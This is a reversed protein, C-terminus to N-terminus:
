PHRCALTGRGVLVRRIQLLCRRESFGGAAGDLTGVGAVGPDLRTRREPDLEDVYGLKGVETRLHGLPDAGRDGALGRNICRQFASLLEGVVHGLAVAGPLRPSWSPPVGRSREPTSSLLPPPWILTATADAALLPDLARPPSASRREASQARLAGRSGARMKVITTVWSGNTTVRITENM